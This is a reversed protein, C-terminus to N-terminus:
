HHTIIFVTFFGDNTNGVFEGFISGKNKEEEGQSKFLIHYFIIQRMM